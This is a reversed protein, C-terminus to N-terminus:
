DEAYFEGLIQATETEVIEVQEPTLDEKWGKPSAKRRIKGPGKEDEPINEWSRKEVVKALERENVPIELTCYIHRMTGLADARLDEYRVRVKHGTHANFAQNTLEIDQLYNRAQGRVFIDPQEDAQQNEEFLEPRKTTRRESPRSGRRHADLASAVVDRPDRVLFIM